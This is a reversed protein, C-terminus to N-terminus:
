SVAPATVTPAYYSTTAAPAYYSTTPAATGCGCPAPAYNATVVPQSVVVPSAVVVPQAAVVPVAPAYGAVQGHHGWFAHAPLSGALWVLAGVLAVSGKNIVSNMKNEEGRSAKM